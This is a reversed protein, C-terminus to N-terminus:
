GDGRDRRNWEPRARTRDLKLGARVGEAILDALNADSTPYVNVVINPAETPAKPAETVPSLPFLPPRRLREKQTDDKIHDVCVRRFLNLATTFAMARHGTDSNVPYQAELLKCFDVYLQDYENPKM